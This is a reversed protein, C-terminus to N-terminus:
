SVCGVRSRAIRLVDIVIVTAVILDRVGRSGLRDCLAVRDGGFQLHRSQFLSLAFMYSLTIPTHRYTHDHASHALSHTLGHTLRRLALAHHVRPAGLELAFQLPSSVSESRSDVLHHSAHTPHVCESRDAILLLHVRQRALAIRQAHLELAALTGCLAGSRVGVVLRTACQHARNHTRARACHSRVPTTCATHRSCNTLANCAARTSHSSVYWFTSVTRTTINQQRHTIVLQLLRARTESGGVRTHALKRRSLARKVCLQAVCAYLQLTRDIRTCVHPTTVSTNIHTVIPEYSSAAFALNSRSCSRATSCSCACCSSTCLDVSAAHTVTDHVPQRLQADAHWLRV